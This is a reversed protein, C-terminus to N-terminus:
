PRFVHSLDSVGDWHFESIHDTIRNNLLQFPHHPAIGFSILGTIFGNLGNSLRFRPSLTASARSSVFACGKGSAQRSDPEQHNQSDRDPFLYTCHCSAATPNSADQDHTPPLIAVKRSCLRVTAHDHPITNLPVELVFVRPHTSNNITIPRSGFTVLLIM